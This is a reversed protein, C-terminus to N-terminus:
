LLRVALAAVAGLSYAAATYTVVPQAHYRSRVRLWLVDAVMAIVVAYVLGVLVPDFGAYAFIALAYLCANVLLIAMDRRGFAEQPCALEFLMLTVVMLAGGVFYLVNGTYYDNVFFGGCLDSATQKQPCFQNFNFSSVEHLGNGTAYFYVGVVFLVFLALGRGTQLGSFNHSVIRLVFVPLVVTFLILTTIQLLEHLRLFHHPALVIRTTPSVREATVLLVNLSSLTFVWNLGKM